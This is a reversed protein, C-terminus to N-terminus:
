IAVVERFIVRVFWGHKRKNTPTVWAIDTPIKNTVKGRPAVRHGDPALGCKGNMCDVTWSGSDYLPQSWSRLAGCVHCVFSLSHGYPQSSTNWWVYKECLLTTTMSPPSPSSPPSLPTPAAPAHSTSFLIVDSHKGLEFSNQLAGPFCQRVPFGQIISSHILALIFYTANSPQFQPAAFAVAQAVQLTKLSERLGQFSEANNVLPGCTMLFLMSGTLLPAIGGNFLVKFFMPVEVVVPKPTCARGEHGAFLDGHDIESHATIFVLVRAHKMMQLGAVLAEVKKRHAAVKANTGFDFELEIFKLGTDDFYSSISNYVLGAVGCPEVGKCFLHLILLPDDNIESCSSLEYHSTVAPLTPLANVTRGDMDQQTFAVYPAYARRPEGSFRNIKIDSLEYCGPCTFSVDPNTATPMYELDVIICSNCVVRRCTNCCYLTDAGDHCLYCFRNHRRLPTPQTQVIAPTTSTATQDSTSSPLTPTPPTTPSIDDMDNGLGEEPMTDMCVDLEVRPVHGCTSCRRKRRGSVKLATIGTRPMKDSHTFQNITQLYHTLVTPSM